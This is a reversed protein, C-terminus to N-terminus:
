YRGVQMVAPKLPFFAVRDLVAGYIGSINEDVSCNQDSATLCDEVVKRFASAVEEEDEQNLDKVAGLFDPTENFIRVDM